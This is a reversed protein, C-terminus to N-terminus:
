NARKVDDQSVRELSIKITGKQVYFADYLSPWGIVANNLYVFVEGDKDPTFEVGGYGVMAYEKFGTEGIRIM